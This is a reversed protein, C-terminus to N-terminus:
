KLLPIAYAEYMYSGTCVDLFFFYWKLMIKICTGHM